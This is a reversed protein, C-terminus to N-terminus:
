PRVGAVGAQPSRSERRAAAALLPLALGWALALATLGQWVPEAIAVAGFHAAARYALPGGVAGLVATVGLHRQALAMSHNVTLGFAAWIALLWLPPWPPSTAAYHLMGLGSLSGDLAIGLVVALLALWADDGRRPSTLLHVAGFVLAAAPGAWARGRAAGFVAAFWVLQYGLLNLGIRMADGHRSM